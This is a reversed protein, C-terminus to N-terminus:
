STLAMLRISKVAAAASSNAVVAHEAAPEPPPPAGLPFAVIAGDKM